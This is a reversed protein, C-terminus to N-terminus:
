LYTTSTALSGAMCCSCSPLPGVLSRGRARPTYAHLLDAESVVGVLKGGEVVPAGTIRNSLLRQAAHKLTDKPRLTVVLHTMVDTVKLVNM